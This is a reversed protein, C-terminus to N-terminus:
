ASTRRVLETDILVSQAEGGEMLRLLMDVATTALAAVPNLVTTLPPRCLAAASSDDFGVVAVDEPVRRGAAQLAHVASVAMLDSAAFVGDLEPSLALLRQMAEGGSAATFDGVETLDEHPDTSIGAEALGERWGALRDAGPTMDQPGAITALRRRGQAILHEAALRGGAHNDVDVFPLRPEGAPRGVYVAPLQTERLVEGIRDDRHHSVVIAGDTYGGRLYKEIKEGGQGRRGMALLVQAPSDALAQTIGGLMAAFFPDGFVRDEAEPVVVAISDAERTVLSRAARNPRYGLEAVAAAVAERARPRVRPDENVVRSATARSVGARAAVDELTPARRSRTERSM